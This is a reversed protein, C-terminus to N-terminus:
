SKSELAFDITNNGGQVEATLESRAHYKAPLIEPRSKVLPAGGEGGSAARASQIRVVHKGVLAGQSTASFDLIYHGREDTIASSARGGTPEFQITAGDLPEGNLTVIGEVYGLEPGESKSCGIIIGCLACTVLVCIRNLM